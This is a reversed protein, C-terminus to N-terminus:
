SMKKNPNSIYAYTLFTSTCTFNRTYRVIWGPDLQLKCTVAFISLLLEFRLRIQRGYPHHLYKKVLILLQYCYIVPLVDSISASLGPRRCELTSFTIWQYMYSVPNEFRGLPPVDSTSIQIFLPFYLQESTIAPKEMTKKTLVYNPKTILACESPRNQNEVLSRGIEHNGLISLPHLFENKLIFFNYELFVLPISIQRM